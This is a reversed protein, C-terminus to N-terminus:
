KKSVSGRRRMIFTSPRTGSLAGGKVRSHLRYTLVLTVSGEGIQIDSNDAVFTMVTAM